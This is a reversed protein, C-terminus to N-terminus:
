HTQPGMQRYVYILSDAVDCAWSAAFFDFSVQSTKESLLFSACPCVPCTFGSGMYLKQLCESMGVIFYKYVNKTQFSPETTLLDSQEELFVWTWNGAGRPGHCNVDLVNLESKQSQTSWAASPTPALCECM